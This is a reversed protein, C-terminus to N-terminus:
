VFSVITVTGSTQSPIKFRKELTTITAIFYSNIAFQNLGVLGFLLVYSKKSALVQLWQPHFGFLGCRSNKTNEEEDNCVLIIVNM